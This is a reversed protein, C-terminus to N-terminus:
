RVPQAGRDARRRAGTYYAGSSFFPILTADTNGRELGRRVSSRISGAVIRGVILVAVAGVVQLGWAAVLATISGLSGKVAEEM